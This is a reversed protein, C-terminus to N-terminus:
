RRRRSSRRSPAPPLEAPGRTLDADPLGALVQLEDLNAVLILELVLAYALPDACARQLADLVEGPAMGDGQTAHEVDQLCVDPRERCYRAIWRVAAAEFREPERDRLVVCVRTADELGVRPLEAAAARIMTLNKTNLARVFRAYASGHDGM